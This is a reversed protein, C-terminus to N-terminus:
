KFNRFSATVNGIVLIDKDIYENANKHIVELKSNKYVLLFKRQSYDENQSITLFDGVITSSLLDKDYELREDVKIVFDINQELVIKIPLTTVDVPNKITEKISFIDKVIPVTVLDNFNKFTSKEFM